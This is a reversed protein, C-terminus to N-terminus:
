VLSYDFLGTSKGAPGITFFEQDLFIGCASSCSLGHVVIVSGTIWLGHEVISAVAM